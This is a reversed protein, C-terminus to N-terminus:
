VQYMGPKVPDPTEGGTKKEIEFRKAKTKKTKYSRKKSRTPEENIGFCYL